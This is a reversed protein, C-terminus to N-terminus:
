RTMWKQKTEEFNGGQKMASREEEPDQWASVLWRSKWTKHFIHAGSVGGNIRGRGRCFPNMLLILLNLLAILWIRILILLNYLHDRNRWLNSQFTLSDFGLALDNIELHEMKFKIYEDVKQKYHSAKSKDIQM